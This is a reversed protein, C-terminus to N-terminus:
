GLIRRPRDNLEAAVCVLDEASYISLDTGKPLVAAAPGNANENSGRQWPSAPECFCIPIDTARTFGDRRGMEGGQDWAQSRTLEASLGTFAHM